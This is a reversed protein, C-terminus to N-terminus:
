LWHLERLTNSKRFYDSIVIMGNDSIYNQSLDLNQLAVNIQIAETIAEVVEDTIGTSSLNLELLTNNHKLSDSIYMVGDDRIPNQSVNFKCLHKNVRIVKAMQKAEKSTIRNCSLNLEQITNNTKLCEMIAVAGDDTVKNCSLDLKQVTTNNYLGFTILCVADDDIGKGSMNIVESSCKHDGDYLINIDVVREYGNSSNFENQILQRHIITTGKSKWTMNLEKLTTNNDLVNKTLQLGNRGIKCLTLSQLTKNTELSYVIEKVYEEMGEDGCLTLGNVYCHRIIACYVGWPSSNNESLDVYELPIAHQICKSLNNMGGLSIQNCSLDLEKLVGSGHQLFDSICITGDDTIRNLSIDLKQVTTKYIGCLLYVILDNIDKKFLTFPRPCETLTIKRMKDFRLNRCVIKTGENNWSLSFEKLTTNNILLNNVILMGAHSEVNCLTLLRLTTNTQLSKTLKKVYENMGKDGCLTLSNVCCHEIIACYVGWPSSKNGSLDVYELSTTYKLYESLWTMGNVSIKNGLLDIEKVATNNCLGFAILCVADDDIDSHSLIISEPSCRTLGDYLMKVNVVRNNIKGDDNIFNLKGEIVLPRKYDGKVASSTSTCLTLLQLTKNTQLSDRMNKVNYKMGEDGCLTLRTLCCDRIITCYVDWPSSLNGSLDVYELPSIHKIWKSLHSMGKSSIHNQSLNLEKLTNNYKLCNSIVVVGDDTIDNCSLDLKKITKNNYLGFTILYVADDNIGENSMNIVESSCKHDGDYLINIDVVGEYGNSSNHILQRHIIITGKSKWTMNLEQLTTNDDLVGKISRVGIRGIKCLTLSQLKTNTELSDAIENTYDQMEEDGCLTLSNVCYFRIMACYVGWPSLKNGSLDVYELLTSHKICESLDSMGRFGISNRSLDLENITRNLKLSNSIIVAGDDTINNYSLDLKKVTTNNHLGFAILCVADDNVALNSLDITQPLRENLGDYLIKVNVVRNHNLKEDDNTFNLRGEVVLRNQPRKFNGIVNMRTSACVTLLQLTANRQLGDKINKVYYKMGKDGCLTLSTASSHRIIACYVGWPSSFNGSLDVYELPTVQNIYKSLHSMGGSTIFNQSLNLEKLTSNCQLCNSIAFAGDDTINNCSLDLKKVTTNNHLGFTILYVADDNIGENSMNIVESSCEHYRDCLINIDVVGEHNSTSNYKYHIIRTGKSEWSMNLENLTTINNLIEKMSQLGNRGIKYLTLSQLKVNAQLSETIEEVFEKMGEDGFLTLSDVCCHRIIACYVGWPSSNNGSLDVYELTSINEDNKIIHELLSDMGTDGLNCDNLELIKWQKVSSASMFFILSSIHHPLLTTNTLTIKGNTFIFSIAKPIKDSKAEMYCQFLHLCKRKDNYMNVIDSIGHRCIFSTFAESKVGVIGVYMMWMFNFPGDWFTGKMLILQEDIYLTSVHLAALYEQMTFHLFNVSTTRGAGRKPYHQVAQLLGYGNIAGSITDVEPCVEKIKDITFVLQNDQLGNFALRALKYIFEVIYTPFDTLKKVVGSPSLKNRELCRYITNIIFSENMETLTEPLGDQQSLYVLIALYLPIYCLNDIMPHQKLYKELDHKKDLSQGLSFSIYRDQEERPFGLIEIRRDVINHLFLTATPRSTIIVASNFFMEGDRVGKVLDAIFSNEQLAVPYEDFGDFVFAVNAGGFKKVYKQLDPTNESTFLQLLENISTVSHLRPDRLYLVFMLKYENLIEGNAWKYAIEKALVTKGIGPAGEILVRRPLKTAADPTFLKKIDTTINSHLGMLKSVYSAGEKCRDYNENLEQQILTSKYHILALNVISSPQNPPWEERHPKQRDITYNDRLDNSLEVAVLPVIHINILQM